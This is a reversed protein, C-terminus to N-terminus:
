NKPIWHPNLVQTRLGTVSTKLDTERPSLNCSIPQCMTSTTLSPASSRYASTQVESSRRRWVTSRLMWMALRRPRNYGRWSQMLLRMQFFRVQHARTTDATKKRSRLHDSPGYDLAQCSTILYPSDTLLILALKPQSLASVHACWSTDWYRTTPFNIKRVWLRIPLEMIHTKHELWGHCHQGATFLTGTTSASECNRWWKM